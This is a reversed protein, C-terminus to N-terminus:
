YLRVSWRGTSETDLELIVLSRVDHLEMGSESLTFQRSPPYYGGPVADTIRLLRVTTHIGLQSNGNGLAWEHLYFYSRPIMMAIQMDGGALAQKSVKINEVDLIRDYGNGFTSPRLGSINIESSDRPILVRLFETFGFKRRDEFSRGDIYTEINIASLKEVDVLNAGKILYTLYLGKRDAMPTFTVEGAGADLEEKGMYKDFRVLPVQDGIALNVTAELRRSFEFTAAGCKVVFHLTDRTRFDSTTKPLEFSMSIAQSGAPAIEFTGAVRQGNWKAEWTGNQSTQSSNHMDADVKFSDKLGDTLGLKWVPVVPMVAAEVLAPSTEEEDAILMPFREIKEHGSFRFSKDEDGPFPKQTYRMQLVAGKGPRAEFPLVSQEPAMGGITKPLIIRGAKELDTLNKVKFELVGTGDGDITFIGSMRYPLPTASGMLSKHLFRGIALHGVESPHLFDVIDQGHDYNAAQASRIMREMEEDSDTVPIGPAAATVQNLDVFLVDNRDAVSKMAGAYTITKGVGDFGTEERIISPGCLIVDCGKQKIIDVSDQMAHMYNELSVSRLADNIGFCIIVLDTDYVFADVTLRSLAHIGIRGNMGLNELTIEPGRSANLKAPNGKKPYVDRVGGTYFFERALEATFFGHYALHSDEAREDYRLNRTVSDGIAVVHVPKRNQLKAFSHPIYKELHIKEEETLPYSGFSKAVTGAFVLAFPV